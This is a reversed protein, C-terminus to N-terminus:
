THLRYKPDVRGLYITTMVLIITRWMSHFLFGYYFRYWLEKWLPGYKLEIFTQLTKKTEDSLLNEYRRYLVYARFTGQMLRTNNAKFTQRWIVMMKKFWKWNAQISGFRNSGHQRYYLTSENLFDTHGLAMAVLAFWYDHVFAEMPIPTALDCLARNFLMTCGQMWNQVLEYELKQGKRTSLSQHKWNSKVLVKLDEDVVTADTHVLLPKEDGWKDVLRSMVEWTKSIKDKFWVDDQDAFMLYPAESLELLRSFNKIIGVNDKFLVLDIKEPYKEKFEELIAPTTDTSADDGILIKFNPYDQALLSILQERVYFEGNYTGLIIEILPNHDM